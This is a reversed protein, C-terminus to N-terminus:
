RSLRDLLKTLGSISCIELRRGSQAVLGIRKLMGLERTVAERHTGIRAALEAHTPLSVILASDGQASTASSLRLLEKVIRGAVPLTALESSKETLSRVRAALQVAMWHGAGPVEVLITNFATGSLFALVAEEVVIASASRPQGGLAAMEGLLRGPGLECLVTERGSTSFVSFSVRGSLILYVDDANAGQAILM